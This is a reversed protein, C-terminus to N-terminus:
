IGSPSLTSTEPHNTYRHEHVHKTLENQIITFTKNKLAPLDALTLGVTSIPEHIILKLPHWRVIFKGDVDPLFIHNFPMTVPVLPTQTEIALKFPGDKFPLMEVGATEAITGEPFIVISRGEAVTKKSRIYSRASSVPNRRDVTIYLKKYIPGWLPVKALGEKGVFNLFGPITQLLLPIDIYSSHNPTFVYTKNPNIHQRGHITVSLGYLRLQVASWLRNLTHAYKYWAPRSTFLLFLPYFLFFPVLFSVVCWAAYIKRFLAVVFRM